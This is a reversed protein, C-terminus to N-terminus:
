SLTDGLWGGCFGARRLGQQLYPCDRMIAWILGSRYNTNASTVAGEADRPMKPPTTSANPRANPSVMANAISRPFWFTILMENNEGPLM